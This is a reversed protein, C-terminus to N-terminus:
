DLATFLEEIDLEKLGQGELFTSLTSCSSEPDRPDWLTPLSPPRPSNTHHTKRKKFSYLTPLM